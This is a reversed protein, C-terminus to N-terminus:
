QGDRETHREDDASQGLSQEAAQHLSERSQFYSILAVVLWSEFPTSLETRM